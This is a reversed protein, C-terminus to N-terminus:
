ILVNSTKTASHNILM